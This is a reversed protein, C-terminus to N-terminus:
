LALVEVGAVRLMRGALQAVATIVKGLLVRVAAPLTLATVAVVQDVVERHAVVVALQQTALGQLTLGRLIKDAVLVL